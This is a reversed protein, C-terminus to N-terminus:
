GGEQKEWKCYVKYEQQGITDRQKKKKIVNMERGSDSCSSEM